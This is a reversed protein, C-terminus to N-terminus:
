FNWPTAGLELALKRAERKGAVKFELGLIFVRKWTKTAYYHATLIPM